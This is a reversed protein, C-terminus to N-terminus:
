TLNTYSQIQDMQAVPQPQELRGNKGNYEAGQSPYYCSDSQTSSTTLPECRKGKVLGTLVVVEGKSWLAQQDEEGKQKRVFNKPQM